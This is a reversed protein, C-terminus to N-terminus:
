LLFRLIAGVIAAIAPLVFEWYSVNILIRVVHGPDGQAGSLSGMVVAVLLGFLAMAGAAGQITVDRHRRSAVFAASGVAFGLVLATVVNVFGLWGLVAGGVVAAGFAAGIGRGTQERSAAGRERPSLSLCEECRVGTPGHRVCDPCLPRECRGCSVNTERDPHYFCRATAVRRRGAGRM